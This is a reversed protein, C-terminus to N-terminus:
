QRQGLDRILEAVPHLFVGSTLELYPGWIAEAETKM